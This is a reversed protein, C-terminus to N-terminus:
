PNYVHWNMQFIFCSIIILLVCLQDKVPGKNSVSIQKMHMTRTQGKLKKNQPKYPGLSSTFM